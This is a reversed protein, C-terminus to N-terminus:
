VGYKTWPSSGSALCSSGSGMCWFIAAVSSIQIESIFSIWASARLFPKRDRGAQGTIIRRVGLPQVPGRSTSPLGMSPVKRACWTGIVSVLLGSCM